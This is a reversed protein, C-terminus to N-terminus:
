STVLGECREETSYYVHPHSPIRVRVINLTICLIRNGVEIESEKPEAAFSCCWIESQQNGGCTKRKGADQWKPSVWGFYHKTYDQGHEVILLEKM